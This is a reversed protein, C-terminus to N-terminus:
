RPLSVTFTTLSDQSEVTITGGLQNVLRRVLALGLGTGGHQWPDHRLIRYFKDFIRPLERAPIEVGSNSVGFHFMGSELRAFVRITEGAPTYKCANNLLENLIRELYTVNTQIRPLYLPIDLVLSQQQAEIRRTFAAAIQEIWTKPELEVITLTEGGGELRSLDLLDNILNTERQCEQQLIQFYRHVPGAEPNLVGLPKLVIELMQIAMKINSLPTRLEHSVTSLFDDKLQNLRALETVQSQAAQYLRSQRLAIACQNAVQQVLGIDQESFGYDAQHILWLDGLVGENDLIPCALKAVRGEQPHPQCPCFQFYQGQLLQAYGQAFNAMHLVMDRFPTVSTAYQYRITSTQQELDYISANCNRVGIAQALEEVATQLIQNEDLSDRVRDTIRKLTAEFTFAQQLLATREQVQQELDTNLRQIQQYLESQQIAIALQDALTRALEVDSEQWSGPSQLHKLNLSGWVRERLTKGPSDGVCLPLLLWAGPYAATSVQNLDPHPWDREGQGEGHGDICVIEGRKLPGAFPNAADLIELGLTNPLMPDHCYSAVYCWRQQHPRYQVIEARELQLLTGIEAVATAFLTPLDLFQRIRQILLSLLQEREAQRRLSSETQRHQTIDRAVSLVSCVHQDPTFEPVLRAQYIRPGDITLLEFTITMEQATTFVQHVQTDWTELVSAPMGLEANTRGRFAQAPLGTIQEMSPNIYRYRLQRDFRAIIDPSHEVLARFEQERRQSLREEQQRQSIDQFVIVGGTIEGRQNKIPSAVSGISYERGMRNRLLYGETHTLTRGAQIAQLLPNVLTTRTQPHVLNLVQTIPQGLAEQQSWGTLTAAVPNIFTIHGCADTAITGEGISTLAAALWQEAHQLQTELLHRRLAINITTQLQLADFPKLLYGFPSTAIARRLTEDDRIATLFVIPIDSQQTIAHATAIGDMGGQLNIAMLVLDPRAHAAQELAAIGTAVTAVVEHESDALFDRICQAAVQEDEVVLIRAM